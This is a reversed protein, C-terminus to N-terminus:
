LSKPSIDAKLGSRPSASWIPFGPIFSEPFVVLAAGNRAAEAIVAVAKDATTKAELYVPAVHAAAAKFRPCRM